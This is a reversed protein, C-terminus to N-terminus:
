YLLNRLKNENILTISHGDIAILQETKFDALTRILSETAIGISNALNERSLTFSTKEAGGKRFKEAAKVLGYAVKKRLSNYAINLLMEEKEAINRSVLKIFQRAVQTNATVLHLFEERPILMLRADELVQANDTYNTEELIPLYGLFDGPAYIQTILEKGDAHTRYGKIRGSVVYYVAKPKQGECYLVTKKTYDYMEREDSLLPNKNSSAESRISKLEDGASHFSQKLAETKKLRIEVANLLEIGDFPKTIYDDAGMEMGKRFDGKESKATLFIFPIANTEVRKNLLHLVGYGDLVPMMIDCVVLDPLERLATEVGEKGNPATFVKYNSLELIEAINERVEDNDEIVLIKKM